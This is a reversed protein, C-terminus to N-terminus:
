VQENNQTQVPPSSSFTNELGLCKILGSFIPDHTRWKGKASEGSRDRPPLTPRPTGSILTCRLYYTLYFFPLLIGDQERTTERSVGSHNYSASM